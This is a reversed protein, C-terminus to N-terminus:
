PTKKTSNKTAPNMKTAPMPPGRRQQLMKRRLEEEPTRVAPATGADVAAAPSAADPDLADKGENTGDDKSLEKALAYGELELRVAQPLVGHRRRHDDWAAERTPGSGGSGILARAGLPPPYHVAPTHFVSKGDVLKPALFPSWGKRETRVVINRRKGDDDVREEVIGHLLGVRFRPGVLVVPGSGDDVLHPKKGAALQEDTLLAMRVNRLRLPADAAAGVLFARWVDNVDNYQLRALDHAGPPVADLPPLPPKAVGDRTCASAGALAGCVGSVLVASVVLSVLRV